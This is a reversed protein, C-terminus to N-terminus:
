KCLMAGQRPVSVRPSTSNARATSASSTRSYGLRGTSTSSGVWWVSRTVFASFRPQFPPHTIIDINTPPYSRMQQPNYLCLSFMRSSHMEQHEERVCVGAECSETIRVSYSVNQPPTDSNRFAATQFSTSPTGGWKTSQGAWMSCWWTGSPGDERPLRAQFLLVDLRFHNFKVFWAYSSVWCGKRTTKRHRRMNLQNCQRCHLM